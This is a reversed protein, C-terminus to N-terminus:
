KRLFLDIRCLPDRGSADCLEMSYEGSTPMISSKSRITSQLITSCSFLDRFSYHFCHIRAKRPSPFASQKALNTVSDFARGANDIWAIRFINSTELNTAVEVM